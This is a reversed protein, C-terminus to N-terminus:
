MRLAADVGRDTQLADKGAMEEDDEEDGDEGAEEDDVDDDEGDDEDEDESDELNGQVALNGSSAGAAPNSDVFRPDEEFTATADDGILRRLEAESDTAISSHTRAM